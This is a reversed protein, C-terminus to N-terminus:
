NFAPAATALASQSNNRCASQLSGSWLWNFRARCNMRSWWCLALASVEAPRNARRKSRSCAFSLRIHNDAGFAAGPVVAVGAEELLYEALAVSGECGDRYHASVEPFAYFAGRPALCRMGPIAELGKMVLNRRVEYEAVMQRVDDEGQGLAALAGRM